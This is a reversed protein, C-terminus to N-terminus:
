GIESLAPVAAQGGGVEECTGLVHKDDLSQSSQYVANVLMNHYLVDLVM